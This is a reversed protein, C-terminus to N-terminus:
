MSRLHTPKEHAFGLTVFLEVCRRTNKTNFDVHLGERQCDQPAAARKSYKSYKTTEGEVSATRWRCHKVHKASTNAVNKVQM